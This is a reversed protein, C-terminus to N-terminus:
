SQCFISLTKILKSLLPLRYPQLQLAPPPLQPPTSRAIPSAVEHFQGTSRALCGTPLTTGWRSPLKSSRRRRRRREDPVQAAVPRLEAPHPRLGCRTERCEKRLLKPTRTLHSAKQGQKYWVNLVDMQQRKRRNRASSNKNRKKKKYTKKDERLEYYFVENVRFPSRFPRRRLLLFLFYSNKRQKDGAIGERAHVHDERPRDKGRTRQIKDRTFVRQNQKPKGSPTTAVDICLLRILSKVTLNKAWTLPIKRLGNILIEANAATGNNEDCSGFPM